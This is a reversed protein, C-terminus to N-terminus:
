FLFVCRLLSAEPGREAQPARAGADPEPPVHSSFGRPSRDTPPTSHSRRYRASRRRSIGRQFPEPPTHERVAPVSTAELASGVSYEVEPHAGGQYKKELAQILLEERGAWKQMISDVEDVKSPNYQRYFTVIKARYERLHRQEFFFLTQSLSSRM